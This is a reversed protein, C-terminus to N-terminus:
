FHLAELEKRGGERVGYLDFVMAEAKESLDDRAQRDEWNRPNTGYHGLLGALRSLELMTKRKAAPLPFNRLEEPRLRGDKAPILRNFYFDALRSNLISCLFGAPVGSEPVVLYVDPGGPLGSRDVAAAIPPGARRVVVKERVAYEAPDPLRFLHLRSWSLYSEPRGAAYREVVAATIVGRWGSDPAALRRFRQLRPATGAFIRAVDGLTGSRGVASFAALLEGPPEDDAFLTDSAGSTGALLRLLKRCLLEPDSGTPVCDDAGADILEALDGFKGSRGVALIPFANGFGRRLRLFAGTETGKELDEVGVIAALPRKRALSKPNFSRWGFLTPELDMRILHSAIALGETKGHGLLM